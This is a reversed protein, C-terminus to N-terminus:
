NVANTNFWWSANKYTHARVVKSNQEYLLPWCKSQRWWFTNLFNRLRLIIWVSGSHMFTVATICNTIFVRSTLSHVQKIYVSFTTAAKITNWLDWIRIEERPFPITISTRQSIRKNRWTVGQGTGTVARNLAYTQPREGASITPEFGVSSMSTKRNHTNHTNGPLPRQSSSIVRGSSDQRSHHTTTHSRSVEQILLNQGM